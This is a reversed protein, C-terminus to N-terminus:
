HKVRQANDPGLPGYTQERMRNEWAISEAGTNEASRGNIMGWDHGFEHWESIGVTLARITWLPGGNKFFQGAFKWQGAATFRLREDGIEEVQKPNVLVRVNQNGHDEGKEYTNAGGWYSLDRDTLGFEVVGKAQV